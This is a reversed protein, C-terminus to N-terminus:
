AASIVRGHWRFDVPRLVQRDRGYEQWLERYSRGLVPHRDRGAVQALPWLVFANETIEPRPLVMGERTGSFQGFTLIDIDLPTTGLRPQDPLRGHKREVEKLFAVLEPMGMAADIGVVMNLYPAGEYGVAESEFVSSLVLDQFKLLLM